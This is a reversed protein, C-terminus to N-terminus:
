CDGGVDYVSVYVALYTVSVACVITPIWSPSDLSCGSLVALIGMCWAIAKM